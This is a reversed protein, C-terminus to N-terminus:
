GHLGRQCFAGMNKQGGEVLISTIGHYADQPNQLVDWLERWLFMGNKVNVVKLVCGRDELIKAKDQHTQLSEPTIIVITRCSDEDNVVTALPSIRFHPDLIIRFPQNHDIFTNLKKEDEMLALQFNTDNKQVFRTNLKPNDSEVTGIGVLIGDSTARLNMHSWRNQDHSTIKLPSKDANSIKGDRTTAMKITVWPRNKARVSIFGRNARECETKLFPGKVEVGRSKLIDIGCGSVRADPDFMGFVVNKIGRELIIDTCPPTKGFHCCPELNIYLVDTHKIEHVFNQILSREAHAKGFGAHFGEAIIRGERVLVSGVFAGNGVRGRGLAALQLCRRMCDPLLVINKM